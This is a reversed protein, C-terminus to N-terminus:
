IGRTSVTYWVLVIPFSSSWAYASPGTKFIIFHSLNKCMKTKRRCESSWDAGWTESTSANIANCYHRVEVPKCSRWKNECIVWNLTQVSRLIRKGDDRQVHQEDQLHTSEMCDGTQTYLAAIGEGTNGAKGATVSTHRALGQRTAPLWKTCALRCQQSYTYRPQLLKQKQGNGWSKSTVFRAKNHVGFGWLTAMLNCRVPHM